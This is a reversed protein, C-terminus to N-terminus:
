FLLYLYSVVFKGNCFRQKIKIQKEIKQIFVNKYKKTNINYIIYPFGKDKLQKGFKHKRLSCYYHHDPGFILMNENSLIDSYVHYNEPIKLKEIKLKKADIFSWISDYGRIFQIIINPITEPCNNFINDISARVEHYSIYRQKVFNSHTNGM